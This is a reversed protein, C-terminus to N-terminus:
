QGGKKKGLIGRVRQVSTDEKRPKRSPRSSSRNANQEEMIHSTTKMEDEVFLSYDRISHSKQRWSDYWIEMTDAQEQLKSLEEEWKEIESENAALMHAEIDAITPKKAGANELESKSEGHARKKWREYSKKTREYNRATMKKLTGFYAIAAPQLAVHQDFTGESVDLLRPDGSELPIDMIEKKALKDCNEIISQTVKETEM